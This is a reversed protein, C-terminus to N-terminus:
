PSEFGRGETGFVSARDVSSYASEGQRKGSPQMLTPHVSPNSGEIELAVVQRRLWEAVGVMFLRALIAFVPGANGIHYCLDLRLRSPSDGDGRVLTCALGRPGGGQSHSPAHGTDQNVCLM